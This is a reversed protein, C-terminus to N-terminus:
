FTAPVSIDHDIFVSYRSEDHTLYKIEEILFAVVSCILSVCFVNDKEPPLATRMFM